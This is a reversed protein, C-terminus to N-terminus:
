DIIVVRLVESAITSHIKLFYVGPTFGQLHMPIRVGAQVDTIQQHHVLSGKTTLLYMAASSLNQSFNIYVMGTTPNPYISALPAHNKTPHSISVTAPDFGSLTLVGSGLPDLHPALRTTHLTGNKDWHHSFRGYYDQLLPQSCSAAGGVLTGVLLGQNNFLPSGSSGGETVGHGSATPAWVVRWASNPAMVSAEFNPTAVTLPASYTSIKKVDGGPHHISVGSNSPVERRDWGNWFLNWSKPATQTLRLLKFDSGNALMASALLEAGTLLNEPVTSSSPPTNCDPVEFNFYFMWQLMESATANAGCHHATLFLMAGDQRTNNILTGTCYFWHNGERLVIRAVGRKQRQWDQGEPCNINVNCNGAAGFGKLHVPYELGGGYVIHILSKLRLSVPTAFNGHSPRHPAQFEIILSDGPSIPTTVIGSQTNNNHDFPGHVVTRNPTYVFLREGEQLEFGDFVLGLGLAGPSTVVLRWVSTNGNVLERQSHLTPFVGLDINFGALMATGPKYVGARQEREAIQDVSLGRQIAPLSEQSLDMAIGLPIAEIHQGHLCPLFSVWLTLNLLYILLSTKM